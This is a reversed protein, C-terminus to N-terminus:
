KYRFTVRLWLDRILLKLQGKLSAQYMFWKRYLRSHKKALYDVCFDYQAAYNRIMSDSRVRYDFLIEPVYYLKWGAEAISIHFDWDAIPSINKDYGGVQQWATKRAVVCADIYNARLLRLLDFKKSKMIGKKGGFYMADGYVVAVDPNKDLIAIGKEPYAQRIKNDADLPIFYAGKCSEIGNNRAMALGLNQQHLITYGQQQLQELVRLTDADTSGDNVIIVEYLENNKFQEINQLADKLYVGHNYCPIIISLVPPV